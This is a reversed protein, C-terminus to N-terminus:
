VKIKLKCFFWNYIYWAIIYKVFGISFIQPFFKNGFFSFIIGGFMYAYIIVSVNPEIQSLKTRKCKEFATQCFIAMITTFIFVGPYGLDCIFDFFITYVNGLNYENVFRYIPKNNIQWEEKGILGGVIKYLSNFTHIGVYKEINKEEQLFTDLNKIEASTYMAIYDTTDMNKIDNRGLLTASFKLTSLMFVALIIIIFVSKAKLKNAFGEKENKLIFIFPIMALVNNVLAGRSGDLVSTAVSLLIIFLLKKDIKKTVIFNNVLIYIFWYSAANMIGSLIDIIKPIGLIEGKYATLNRYKYLANGINSFSGDVSKVTFYLTLVNVIICFIIFLNLKINQIKILNLEKKEKYNEKYKSSYISSIIKCVISFTLIGFIIVLLTNTNLNVNWKEIYFFLWFTSFTFGASFVVAPSIYLKDNIFYNVGTIILLILFLIIVIFM